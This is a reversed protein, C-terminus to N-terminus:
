PSTTLMTNILGEQEEGATTDRNNESIRMNKPWYVQKCENASKGQTSAMSFIFYVGGILTILAFFGFTGAIKMYEIMAGTVLSLILM